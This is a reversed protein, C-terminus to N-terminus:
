QIHGVGPSTPNKQPTPTMANKEKKAIIYAVFDPQGIRFTMHFM